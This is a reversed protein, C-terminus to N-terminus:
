KPATRSESMLMIFAEIDQWPAFGHTKACPKKYLVNRKQDIQPVNRMQDIQPVNRMQDIQPVNRM